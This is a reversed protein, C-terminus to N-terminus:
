TTAPWSSLAPGGREMARRQEYGGKALIAGIETITEQLRDARAGFGEWAIGAEDFEWKMHGSGLGVELRGDTLVDATM